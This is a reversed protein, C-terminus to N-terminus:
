SARARLEKGERLEQEARYWDELHHGHAYGREAFFRHALRAVQDHPTQAQTVQKKKFRETIETINSPAGTKKALVAGDTAAAKKRSKAADKAPTKPKKVTEAMLFGGPPIPWRAATKRMIFRIQMARGVFLVRRSDVINVQDQEAARSATSM